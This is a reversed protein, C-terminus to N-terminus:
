DENVVIEKIEPKLTQTPITIKTTKLEQILQQDEPSLLPKLDEPIEGNTTTWELKAPHTNIMKATNKIKPKPTYVELDIRPTGMGYIDTERPYYKIRLKQGKHVQMIKKSLIIKAHKNVYHPKVTKYKIHEPPETTTLVYHNPRETKCLFIVQRIGTLKTFNNHITVAHTKTNGNITEVIAYEWTITINNNEYDIKINERIPRSMKPKM